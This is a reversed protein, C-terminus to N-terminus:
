SIVIPASLWYGRTPVTRVLTGGDDGLKRRLRAVATRLVSTHNSVQDSLVSPADTLGLFRGPANSMAVLLNTELVTLVFVRDSPDVLVHTLRDLTWERGDIPGALRAPQKQAPQSRNIRQRRLLARARAVLERRDGLRELLDDAGLELAVIRETQDVDDSLLVLPVRWAIELHRFRDMPALGPINGLILLGVQTEHLASQLAGRTAVAMAPLRQRELAGVVADRVEATEDAVLILNVDAEDSWLRTPLREIPDCERAGPGGDSEATPHAFRDDLAM